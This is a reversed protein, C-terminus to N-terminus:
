DVSLGMFPSTKSKNKLMPFMDSLADLQHPPPDQFFKKVAQDASPMSPLHVGVEGLRRMLLVEGRKAPKVSSLPDVAQRHSRRIGSTESSPLQPPADVLVPDVRRRRPPKDALLPPPIDKTVNNIFVELAASRDVESVVVTATVEASAPEALEVSPPALLHDALTEVPPVPTAAVDVVDQDVEAIAGQEVACDRALCQQGLVGGVVSPGELSIGAVSARDRIEQSRFTAVFLEPFAPELTFDDEKINLAAVIASKAASLAVMALADTTSLTLALGGAAVAPMARGDSTSPRAHGHGNGSPAVRGVLRPQGSRPPPRRPRTCDKAHHRFGHCRLCRSPQRCSAVRHKFSLCNLCRGDLVKPFCRQPLAEPQPPQQPLQPAMRQPARRREVRQWGDPDVRPPRLAVQGRDCTPAVLSAKRPHDYRQLGVVTKTTGRWRSSRRSRRKAMQPSPPPQRRGRRRPRKRHGGEGRPLQVVISSLTPRPVPAPSRRVADLYPTQSTAGAGGTDIVEDIDDDSDSDDSFDMWRKAMGRDESSISPFFPEAAPSLTSPSASAGSCLPPLAGQHHGAALSRPHTDGHSGGGSSDPSSSTGCGEVM